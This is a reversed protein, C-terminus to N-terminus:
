YPTAADEPSFHICHTFIIPFHWRSHSRDDNLCDDLKNQIHFTNEKEKINLIYKIYIYQKNSKPFYDILLHYKGDAM